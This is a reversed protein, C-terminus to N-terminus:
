KEMVILPFQGMRGLLAPWREEAAFLSRLLLRGPAGHVLVRSMETALSRWSLIRWRFPWARSEFWRQSQPQWYLTEGNEHKHLKRMVSRALLLPAAALKAAKMIPAHGGWSYVVVGAHGPMLVRGLERFAREQEDAPVHYITHLSVLADISDDALPLNTIDGLIYAAREGLKRQAASLATRSMDMCIRLEFGEGYREYEPYQVPGSAVDLLFRGPRRLYRDVRLRSERVYDRAVPRLDEWRVADEFNGDSDAQWGIRDYFRQVDAKTAAASGRQAGNQAGIGSDRLLCVIGAVIPYVLTGDSTALAADCAVHAQATVLEAPTAARLTQRTRPCRLIALLHPNVATL